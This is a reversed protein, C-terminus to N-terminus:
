IANPLLNPSAQAHRNIREVEQQQIRLAEQAHRNIREVEQQQIRLAEQAHRNIREAEQQQVELAYWAERNIREAEQQQLQQLIDFHPAPPNPRIPDNDPIPQQPPHIDAARLEDQAQQRIEGRDQQRRLNRQRRRENHAANMQENLRANYDIRPRHAQAHQVHAIANRPLGPYQEVPLPNHPFNPPPHWQPAPGAQMFDLQPVPPLPRDQNERAAHRRNRRSPSTMQLRNLRDQERQSRRDREPTVQEDIPLIQNPNM